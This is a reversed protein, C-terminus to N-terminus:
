GVRKNDFYFPPYLLILVHTESGVAQVKTSAIGGIGPSDSSYLNNLNSFRLTVRLIWLALFTKVGTRRSCGMSQTESSSVMLAIPYMPPLFTGHIYSYM